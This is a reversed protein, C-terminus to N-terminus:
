KLERLLTGGDQTEEDREGPDRLETAPREAPPEPLPSRGQCDPGFYGKCCKATHIVM